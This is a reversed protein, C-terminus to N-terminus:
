WQEEGLIEVKLRLVAECFKEAFEEETIERYTTGLLDRGEGWAGSFLIGYEFFPEILNPFGYLSRPLNLDKIFFAPYQYRNFEIGTKTNCEQPVGIVKVYEKENIVFCRGINALAAIKFDEIKKKEAQRRLAKLEALKEDIEKLEM